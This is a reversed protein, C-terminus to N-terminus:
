NRKMVLCIPPLRQTSIRLLNRLYNQTIFIISMDIILEFSFDLTFNICFILPSIELIDLTIM